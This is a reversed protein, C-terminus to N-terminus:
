KSDGKTWDEPHGIRRLDPKRPWRGSVAGPTRIEFEIQSVSPFRPLQDYGELLRELASVIDQDNPPWRVIRDMM